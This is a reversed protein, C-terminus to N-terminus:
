SDTLSSIIFDICTKNLPLEPDPILNIPVPKGNIHLWRESDDDVPGFLEIPFEITLNAVSVSTRNVIYKIMHSSRSRIAHVIMDIIKEPCYLHHWVRKCCIKYFPHRECMHWHEWYRDCCEYKEMGWRNEYEVDSISM